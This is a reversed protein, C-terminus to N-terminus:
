HSRWRLPRSASAPRYSKIKPRAKRVAWRRKFNRAADGEASSKVLGSTQAKFNSAPANEASPESQAPSPNEVRDPSASANAPQTSDEKTIAEAPPSAPARNRLSKSSNAPDTLMLAMAAAVIILALMLFLKMGSPAKQKAERPQEEQIAGVRAPNESVLGTGGAMYEPPDIITITPPEFLARKPAASSQAEAPRAEASRAEASQAEASFERGAGQRQVSESEVSAFNDWGVQLSDDKLDSLASEFPFVDEGISNATEPEEILYEEDDILADLVSGDLITSGTESAEHDPVVMKLVARLEAHSQPRAAPNKELLSMVATIAAPPLDSRFVNPPEPTQTKHKRRVVNPDQHDFPVRDTLMEHLLVGLTYLDSRSDVDKESAQEPSCYIAPLSKAREHRAWMLEEEDEIGFDAVLAAGKKDVLISEPQLKLHMVGQSQAYELAESIQLALGAALKADLWARLNLLDRLSECELRHEIACFHLNEIQEPEWTRVINKHSLKAAARAELYFLEIRARDLPSQERIIKLKVLSDGGASEAGERSEGEREDRALFVADSGSAELLELITFRPSLLAAIAQQDLGTSPQMAIASAASTAKSDTAIRDNM